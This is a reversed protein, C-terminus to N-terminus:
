PIVVVRYFKHEASKGVTTQTVSEIATLEELPLWTNFRDSEQVEYTKGPVSIWTLSILEQASENTIETVILLSSADTPDTGAIFEAGDSAGDADTDPNLPDSGAAEEQLNSLGDNDADFPIDSGPSGGVLASARWNGPSAYDGEPDIVELSAGTGSAATPWPADDDYRFQHIINGNPDRIVIEEGGNSLAGSSWEGLILPSSTYHSQFLATNAVLM